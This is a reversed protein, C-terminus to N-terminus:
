YIIKKEPNCFNTPVINILKIDQPTLTAVDRLQFENKNINFAALLCEHDFYGASILLNDGLIQMSSPYVFTKKDWTFLASCKDLQKTEVNFKFLLIFSYKFIKINSLESFFKNADADKNECNNILFQCAFLLNYCSTKDVVPPTIFGLEADFRNLLTTLFPFDFTTFSHTPNTQEINSTYQLFKADTRHSFDFLNLEFDNQKCKSWIVWTESPSNPFNLMTSGLLKITNKNIEVITKYYTDSLKTIIHFKNNVMFVRPQVGLSIEKPLSLQKLKDCELDVLIASTKYFGGPLTFRFWPQEPYSSGGGAFPSGLDYVVRMENNSGVVAQPINIQESCRNFVEYVILFTNDNIHWFSPNLMRENKFNLFKPISFQIM